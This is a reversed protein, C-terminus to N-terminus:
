KDEEDLNGIPVRGFLWCNWIDEEIGFIGDYSEIQEIHQVKSKTGDKHLLYITCYKAVEAAVVKSMPFMGNHIYGYENMDNISITDDPMVDFEEEKYSLADNFSVKRLVWDTLNDFLARYYLRGYYDALADRFNDHCAIEKFDNPTDEKDCEAVMLSLPGDGLVRQIGLVIKKNCSTVSRFVAYEKNSM